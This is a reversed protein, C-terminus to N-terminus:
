NIPKGPDDVQAQAAPPLACAAAIALVLELLTRRTM